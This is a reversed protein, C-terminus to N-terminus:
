YQETDPDYEAYRQYTKLFEGANQLLAVARILLIGTECPMAPPNM